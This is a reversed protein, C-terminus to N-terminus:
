IATPITYSVLHYPKSEDGRRYAAANNRNVYAQAERRDTDTDRSIVKGNIAVLHVTATTNM